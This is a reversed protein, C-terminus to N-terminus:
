VRTKKDFKSKMEKELVAWKDEKAAMITARLEAKSASKDALM